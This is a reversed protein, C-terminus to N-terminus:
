RDVPIAVGQTPPVSAATPMAPDSFVEKFGAEAMMGAVLAGGAGIMACWGTSGDAASVTEFARMLDTASANDGGLDSPIGLKFIGTAALDAVLDKPLKRGDEIEERRDKIRPLLEHLKQAFGDTAMSM